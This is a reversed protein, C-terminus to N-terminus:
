YSDFVLRQQVIAYQNRFTFLFPHMKKCFRIIKANIIVVRSRMHISHLAIPQVKSSDVPPVLYKKPLLPLTTPTEPNTTSNTTTMVSTGFETITSEKIVVVSTATTSIITSVKTTTEPTTPSM